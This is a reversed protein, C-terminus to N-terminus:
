PIGKVVGKKFILPCNGSITCSGEKYLRKVDNHIGIAGHPAVHKLHGFFIIYSYFTHLNPYSFLFIFLHTAASVTCKGEALFRFSTYNKKLM